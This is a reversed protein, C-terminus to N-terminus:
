LETYEYFIKTFPIDYGIKTKADDIWAEPNYPLVEREMYEDNEEALPITETDRKSPDPVKKGKKKQAM